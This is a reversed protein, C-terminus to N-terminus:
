LITEVQIGTVKHFFLSRGLYRELGQGLIKHLIGNNNIIELLAIKWFPPAETYIAMADPWKTDADSKILVTLTSCFISVFLTTIRFVYQQEM